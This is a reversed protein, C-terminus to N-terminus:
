VRQMLHGCMACNSSGFPFILMSTPISNTASPIMGSRLPHPVMPNESGSNRIFIIGAIASKAMGASANNRKISEMSSSSVMLTMVMMIPNMNKASPIMCISFLNPTIPNPSGILSM